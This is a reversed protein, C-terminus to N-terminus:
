DTFSGSWVPPDNFAYINLTFCLNDQVITEPPDIAVVSFYHEGIDYKETNKVEIIRKEQDITIFEPVEGGILFPEISVLKVLSYQLDLHGLYVTTFPDITWDTRTNARNFQKVEKWEEPSILVIPTYEELQITIDFYCEFTDDLYAFITM